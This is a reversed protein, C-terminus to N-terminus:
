SFMPPNSFSFLSGSALPFNLFLCKRHNIYRDTLGLNHISPLSVHDDVGDFM